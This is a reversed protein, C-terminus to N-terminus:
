KHLVKFSNDHLQLMKHMKRSLNFKIIQANKNYVACCMENYILKSTTTTTMQKKNSYFHAQFKLVNAFCDTIDPMFHKRM